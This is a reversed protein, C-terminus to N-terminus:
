VLNSRWLSGLRFTGGLYLSGADAGKETLVHLVAEQSNSVQM